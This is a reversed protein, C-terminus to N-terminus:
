YTRANKYWASLAVREEDTIFTVNAPPMAHSIGAHLYIARANRAIDEPTDLLVAKPAWQLTDSWFPERSHCMSCRGLVISHVDDFGETTVFTKEYDTLTVTDTQRNDQWTNATCLWAINIFLIVTM